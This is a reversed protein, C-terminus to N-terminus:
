EPTVEFKEQKTLASVEPDYMGCAYTGPVTFKGKTVTKVKYALETVNKGAQAYFIMRDERAEFSDFSGSQSGSIIEFCAPLMDVAALSVSDASKARIRLRVTLIDGLKATKVSAGNSDIYDAAIELGNAYSKATKDFGQQIISYYIKGAGASNVIFEKADPEFKSYPFPDATLTLGTEKGASNKVSISIASDKNEPDKGYSLLALLIHSSSVTNYKGSLVTNVLGAAIASADPNLNQPFHRSCLYLYVANRQSGSDYDSYFIFKDKADPKFTKILSDAKKSDKLLMHCSAMYASTIDEKWKKHNENLYEEIRLLNNTTVFDNRTLVYNAYAKLRADEFSEPLESAFNELWNKGRSLIDAPVPYGSEKADTLFHLTYVTTYPHAPSSDAWLAFGGSNQQRVRIKSLANDFMKQQEQATIFGKRGSVPGYIFPFVSSVIQETCGYPYASFYKKLSLFIIQPSRSAAIERVSYEDYMDRAFDNIKMKSKNSVGSKIVTQYVNSPRVSVGAASKYEDNKYKAKFILDGSGLKDLTELGFKVTKEGGEKIELTQKNGSIIKFKGDTELWVEVAASKSGEINNSVAASVEFSDGPIAALPAMPSIIVPSKVVIEKDASGAKDPSAAVAMVKLLGNFYDPVKYKVTKYAPSSDLVSSWFVAPAAQKRAFPNLNKEIMEFGDGGGTGSVEKIIKYDPLILDATQFTAVELAAKKFFFDLPSPTRYGAAQLIGQDAAFVVIKAAASTKYSIEIEDGPRVTQPTKLNIAIKREALSIRFPVAAYAHPVSFIEKSDASRIFSVNVYANGELNAPVTIKEVASATNTKFWKYAYVKDKEITILGSGTYPATINLVLQSGPEVDDNQLVVALSADKEIKLGSNSTGAVFYSFGLIKTGNEDAIEVSYNGTELTNLVFKAGKEPIEFAEESVPTEKVSSQYKYVGNNQKVLSSIYQKRLIKAKLNKVGTRKLDNDVAIINVSVSSGKNLYELKSDTKYGALYKYPSIKVSDYAYVSKGSDAESVEAEFSLNYTGGSYKSLNLNFEAEGNEGTEANELYETLNQVANRGSLKYPDPFKFGPFKSFKFEAPAPSYSAKVTRNQAPTGFFNNATVLAKLDEPITWGTGSTGTIKASVKISDTRFEEIRVAASGIFSDNKGDKVLYAALTYTGTPSVNYTKIGDVATLGSSNLSVTKEFVTKGYPDSLVTKVAIGSIDSWSEDKVIMAFNIDDGPRYIGRDSFIFAKLGKSIASSYEGSVDFKSYNVERDNRDFPMFSIDNGNSAVYAVPSNENQFGEVKSFVACGEANTRQTLVPIGNKGLIEVKVGAVPTGNKISMVFVSHKNTIDKKVLMVMDTALIFRKDSPGDNRNMAPDYAQLDIFFLGSSGQSSLFENMNLSSYNAKSVSVALPIVKSFKVSINSEDFDYDNKFNPHAFNGYTQSILHNIQSPMVRSVDAKVGKVGRTKFTLVNSSLPLVAGDPILSVEKPYSASNIVARYPKKITFDTQSTIGEKVSVYLYRKALDPAEYRYLYSGSIESPNEALKLELKQSMALIEPTIESISWRYSYPMSYRVPEAYEGGDNYYGETDDRTESFNENEESPNKLPLLYAETKGDLEKVNVGDTFNVALFQEYDEDDNKVIVSSVSSFKFFKEQSPIDLSQKIKDSAKGGSAAKASSLEISATQDNELIQIYESVAYANRKLADYTVTCNIDKKNLVFKLNKEFSKEDVTHTFSFIAQIQRLKPNKPDQFLNFNSLYAKFKPTSVKYSYQTLPFEPNFIDKPLKIKYEEGAPWDNKPTFALTYENKWEWIGEAKPSMTINELASGIKEINAASSDASFLIPDPDASKLEGKENEYYDTIDPSQVRFIGGADTKAAGSDKIKNILSHFPNFPLSYIKPFYIIGRKIFLSGLVIAILVIIILIRGFGNKM